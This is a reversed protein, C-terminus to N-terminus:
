RGGAGAARPLALALPLTLPLPLPLPLTRTPTPTVVLAHRRAESPAAWRRAAHAALRRRYGTHHRLLATTQQLSAAREVQSAYPQLNRVYPQVRGAEPQLSCAYPQSAPPPPPSHPYAPNCAAWTPSCAAHLRAAAHLPGSQVKLAAAEAQVERRHQRAWQQWSALLLRFFGRRARKYTILARMQRLAAGCYSQLCHHEAVGRKAVSSRAFPVLGIWARMM